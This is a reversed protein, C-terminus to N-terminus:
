VVGPRWIGDAIRRAGAPPRVCVYVWCSVLRGSAATAVTQERRFLSRGLDDPKPGSGRDPEYGEYADFWALPPSAPGLAVLEGEIWGAREDLVAGPHDGLDYLRGRVRAPELRRLSRTVAALAPPARDPRLTGYVFLPRDV